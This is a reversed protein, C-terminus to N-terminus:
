RLVYIAKGNRPDTLVGDEVGFIHSVEAHSLSKPVLHAAKVSGSPVPFGLVHCWSENAQCHKDLGYYGGVEKKFKSQNLPSKRTKAAAGMVRPVIADMYARELLGNDLPEVARSRKVEVEAELDEQILRKQRKMVTLAQSATRFRRLVPRIANQFSSNELHGTMTIEVLGDRISSMYSKEDELSAIKANLFESAASECTHSINSLNSSMSVFRNDRASLDSQRAAPMLSSIEKPVIFPVKLGDPMNISKIIQDISRPSQKSYVALDNTSKPFFRTMTIRIEGNGKPGIARIRNNCDTLM